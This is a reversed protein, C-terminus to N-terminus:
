EEPPVPFEFKLVRLFESIRDVTNEIKETGLKEPQDPSISHIVTELLELLEKNALDSFQVLTFNIQMNNKLLMVIQEDIDQDM